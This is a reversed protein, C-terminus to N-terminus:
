ECIIGENKFSHIIYVKEGIHFYYEINEGQKQANQDHRKFFYEFDSIETLIMEGRQISLIEQPLAKMIEDDLSPILVPYEVKDCRAALGMLYKNDAVDIVYEDSPFNKMFIEMQELTKIPMGSCIVQKEKWYIQM